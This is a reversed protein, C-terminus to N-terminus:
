RVVLSLRNPYGMDSLWSCNEGITEVVDTTERIGATDLLKVPFGSVVIGIEVM